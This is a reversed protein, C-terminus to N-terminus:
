ENRAANLRGVVFANTEPFHCLPITFHCVTLFLGTDLFFFLRLDFALGTLLVGVLLRTGIGSLYLGLSRGFSGNVNFSRLCMVTAATTTIEISSIGIAIATSNM